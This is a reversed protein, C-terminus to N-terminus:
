KELRTVKTVRYEKGVANEGDLGMNYADSRWSGDENYCTGGTYERILYSYVDTIDKVPTDTMNFYFRVPVEFMDVYQAIELPTKLRGTDDNTWYKEYEKCFNPYKARFETTFNYM